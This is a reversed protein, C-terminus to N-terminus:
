LHPSWIHFLCQACRRCGRQQPHRTRGRGVVAHDANTEYGVHGAQRRVGVARAAGLCDLHCHRVQAAHHGALLNLHQHRIVLVTGVDCRGPGAFPQVLLADIHQDCPRIGRRRQRHRFYGLFLLRREEHHARTSGLQRIGLARGVGHVVDIVRNRQRAARRACHHFLAVLIPIEQGHVMGEPVSEFAIRRRHHLGIAAGCLSTDPMRQVRGVERGEDQLRLGRAGRHQSQCIRGAVGAVGDLGGIFEAKRRLHFDGAQQHQDRVHM